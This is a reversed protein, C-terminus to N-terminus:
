IFTLTIFSIALALVVSISIRVNDLAKIKRLIVKNFLFFLAVFEFIAIIIYPFAIEKGFITITKSGGLKLVSEVITAGPANVDLELTIIGPRGFSDTAVINLYYKGTTTNSPVIVSFEKETIFNTKIPLTLNSDITLWSCIMMNTSNCTLTIMQEITGLNKFKLVDNRRSGANIQYNFSETEISWSSPTNNGVVVVSSSSGGPAAPNQISQTSQTIFFDTYTSGILGSTDNAYLTIRYRWVSDTDEPAALILNTINECNTLYTTGIVSQLPSTSNTVNYWCKDVNSNNISHKLEILYSSVASIFTQEFVPRIITFGPSKISINRSATSTCLNTMDCVTANFTYNAADLGDFTHFNTESEYTFERMLDTSNYLYYTVNKFNDDLMFIHIFAARTNYLSGNSSDSLLYATPYTGLIIRRQETQNCNGVIDCTKAYYYYFDSSLNTFNYSFTENAFSTQNILSQSSNLLYYTINKYNADEVDVSIFIDSTERITNNFSANSDFYINPIQSNTNITFIQKSFNWIMAEEYIRAFGSAAYALTNWTGNYCQLGGDTDARFRLILKNEDYDWCSSPIQKNVYVASAGIRGKWISDERSAMLPKTYNVYHNDGTTLIASTGWDGDNWQNNTSYNGTNLDGCDNKINATEQYCSMNNGPESYKVELVSSPSSFPNSFIHNFINEGIGSLVSVSDVIWNIFWNTPTAITFTLNANEEWTSNGSTQNFCVSSNCSQLIFPGYTLSLLSLNVRGYTDNAYYRITNQGYTLNYLFNQNCTKGINTGNYNVWCSALNVDQVSFNITLSSQTSNYNTNNIPANQSIRPAFIDVYFLRTETKNSNNFVDYVTANFYYTGEDRLNYFTVSASNSSNVLGTQNFLYITQNKINTEVIDISISLNNATITTNNAIVGSSFSILPKELDTNIKRLETSNCLGVKDCVSVNYYYSEGPTDSFNYIFTNNTFLENRVLSMTSSYLMFRTSNVNLENASVNVIIYDNETFSNNLLTPSVYTIQPYTTDLTINRTSSIGKNEFTNYSTLNYYYVGDTLSTFNISETKETFSTTNVLSNGKYLYYTVNKFDDDVISTNIFIWNQNKYVGSNETPSIFNIEPISTAITLTRNESLGENGNIDFVSWFWTYVGDILQKITSLVISLIGSDFTTESSVIVKGTTYAPCSPSTCTGNYRGTIDTFYTSNDGSSNDFRYGAVLGSNFPAVSINAYLGRGSNYLQSIETTNLSRNFALVQDISGNFAGSAAGIFSNGTTALSTIPYTLGFGARSATNIYLSCTYHSGNYNMNLFIHNWNGNNIATYGSTFYCPKVSGDNLVVEIYSTDRPAYLGWGRGTLPNGSSILISDTTKTNAKVWVSVSFNNTTFNFPNTSINVYDNSGDFLLAKGTHYGTISESDYLDGDGNFINLTANKIDFQSTINVSFNQTQNNYTQNEPSTINIVPSITYADLTITHSVSLNDLFSYPISCNNGVIVCGECDCASLNLAQNIEFIIDENDIQYTINIDHIEGNGATDSYIVVPVQCNGYIDESCNGQSTFWDIKEEFLKLTNESFDIKDIMIWSNNYKCYTSLDGGGSYPTESLFLKLNLVRSQNFCIDQIQISKDIINDFDTYNSYLIHFDAGTFSLNTPKYYSVYLNGDSFYPDESQFFTTENGDYFNAITGSYFTGDTSYTGFYRNDCDTDSALLENAQEQYCYEKGSGLYNNFYLSLDSSYSESMEGTENYAIGSGVNGVRVKINSMNSYNKIGWTVVEEYFLYSDTEFDYWISSEGFKIKSGTNNKCEFQTKGNTTNTYSLELKGNTKNICEIPIIGITSMSDSFMFANEFVEVEYPKEGIFYETDYSAPSFDTNRSYTISSMSRNLGNYEFSLMSINAPITYNVSYTFPVVLSTATEENGDSWNGSLSYSGGTFNFTCGSTDNAHTANAQQQTCYKGVIEVEQATLNFSASTVNATKSIDFYFFGIRYTDMWRPLSIYDNSISNNTKDLFATAGDLIANKYWFSYVYNSIKMYFSEFSSGIIEIFASTINSFRNISLSYVNSNGWYIADEFLRSEASNQCDSLWGNGWNPYILYCLSTDWNGDTIMADNRTNTDVDGLNSSEIQTITNWTGNFCQGYSYIPSYMEFSSYLRLFINSSNYSFCSDPISVNYRELNGHKVSWIASISDTPKEYSLNVYMPEYNSYGGYSLNCNGDTGSQNSVSASEQYCISASSFGILFIFALSCYIIFKNKM